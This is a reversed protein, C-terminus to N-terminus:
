IVASIKKLEAICEGMILHLGQPTKEELLYSEDGIRKIFDSVATLESITNDLKDNLALSM